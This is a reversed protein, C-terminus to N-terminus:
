QLADETAPPPSPASNPSLVPGANSLAGPAVTSATDAASGGDPDIAAVGPSAVGSAGAEKAQVVSIFAMVKAKISAAEEPTQLLFDFSNSSIFDDFPALYGFFCAGGCSQSCGASSGSLSWESAM